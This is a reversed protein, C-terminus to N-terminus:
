REVGGILGIVSLAVIFGGIVILSPGSWWAYNSFLTQVGTVVAGAFSLFLGAALGGLFANLKGFSLLLVFAGVFIVIYAWPVFITSDSSDHIPSDGFIIQFIDDLTQNSTINTINAFIPMKGTSYNGQYYQSKLGNLTTNIQFKYNQTVSCGHAADFYYIRNPAYMTIETAAPIFNENTYNYVTFESLITSGTTDLYHVWFGTAYWGYTITCLDFINYVVNGQYPIRIDTQQILYTADFYGIRDIELVTSHVGLFYRNGFVLWPYIQSTADMYESDIIMRVGSSNYAYVVVYPQNPYIFEGTEDYFGLQYKVLSSSFNLTSESYVPLDTRIYFTYNDQGPICVQKRTCYYVQGFTDNWRLEFFKPDEFFSLNLSFIGSSNGSFNGEMTSTHICGTGALNDFTVTDTNNGYYVIFRHVGTFPQGLNVPYNKGETENEYLVTINLTRQKGFWATVSKPSSLVIHEPSAAGSLDGSWGIFEVKDSTTNAWLTANVYFPNKTFSALVTKYDDMVIFAPSTTNTLDGEFSAFTSGPTANAWVEVLNGRVYPGDIAELTGHGTGLVSNIRTVDLGVYDYPTATPNTDNGTIICVPPGPSPYGWIHYSGAGTWNDWFNGVTGGSTNYNNPPSDDRVNWGPVSNWFDNYTVNNGSGGYFWIGELNNTFNNCTINSNFGTLTIGANNDKFINGYFDNFMNPADLFEIGSTSGTMQNFSINTYNAVTLIVDNSSGPAFFNGKIDNYENNVYLEICNDFPTTGTPGFWNNLIDNYDSQQLYIPSWTGSFSPWYNNRIINYSSGYVSIPEQSGHLFRNDIINNYSCYAILIQYYGSPGIYDFTNGIIYNSNRYIDVESTYFYNDKITCGIAGIQLYVISNLIGFGSINVLSTTVDFCNGGSGDIITSTYNEGIINLRKSVHVDEKYYGGYVYITDGNSAASVASSITKYSTTNQNQGGVFLIKGGLYEYGAEITGSDAGSGDKQMTLSYDQAYGFQISSEAYDVIGFYDDHWVFAFGQEPVNPRYSGFKPYNAFCTSPSTQNIYTDDTTLSRSPGWYYATTQFFEYINYFNTSTSSRPTLKMSAIVHLQDSVNSISLSARGIKIPVFHYDIVGVGIPVGSISIGQITITVYPISVYNRVICWFINDSSDVVMSPYDLSNNLDLSYINSLVVVSGWTSAGDYTTYNFYKFTGGDDCTWSIHIYNTNNVVMAVETGNWFSSAICTTKVNQVMGWGSGTNNRYAVGQGYSYWAVSINDNSDVVIAGNTQKTGSLNGIETPSTWTSGNNTSNIYQLSWTGNDLRASYIVHIRDASDTAISIGSVADTYVSFSTLLSTTWTTGNDTSKSFYANTSLGNFYTNVVYLEGTFSRAISRGSSSVNGYYVATASMYPYYTYAKASNYFFVQGMSLMFLFVFIISLYKRKLTRLTRGM